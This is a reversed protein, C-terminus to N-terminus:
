LLYKSYVLIKRYFILHIQTKLPFSKNNARVHSHLKPPFGSAPPGFTCCINVLGSAPRRPYLM